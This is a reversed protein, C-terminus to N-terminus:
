LAQEVVEFRFAPGVRARFGENRGTAGQTPKVTFRLEAATYTKAALRFRPFRIWGDFGSTMVKNMSVAQFDGEKSMGSAERWEGEAATTLWLALDCYTVGGPNFGGVGCDVWIDIEKGQNKPDNVAALLEGASRGGTWAMTFLSTASPNTSPSRSVCVWDSGGDPNPVMSSVVVQSGTMAVNTLTGAVPKTGSINTGSAANTPVAGFWGSLLNPHRYGDPDSGSAVQRSDTYSGGLQWRPRFDAAIVHGLVMGKAAAGGQQDHVLDTCLDNPPQQGNLLENTDVTGYRTILAEAHPVIRVFPYRKTLGQMRQMLLSGAAYPTSNIPVTGSDYPPPTCLYLTTCQPQLWEIAECLKNYGGLGSLGEDAITAGVTGGDVVIGGVRGVSRIQAKGNPQMWGVLGRGNTGLTIYRVSGGMAISVYAPVGSASSWSHLDLAAISNGVLDSASRDPRPDVYTIRTRGSEPAVTLVEFFGECWDNRTDQIRFRRGPRWDVPDNLTRFSGIGSSRSWTTPDISFFPTMRACYSPGIHLITEENVSPRQDLDRPLTDLPAPENSLQARNSGVLLRAFTEDLDRISGATLLGLAGGHVNTLLKVRM